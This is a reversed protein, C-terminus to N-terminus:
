FDQQEFKILMTNPNFFRPIISMKKQRIKYRFTNKKNTNKALNQHKTIKTVTKYYTQNQLLHSYILTLILKGINQSLFFM